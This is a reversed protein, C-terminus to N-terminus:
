AEEAIKLFQRFIVEDEIKYLDKTGKAVRRFNEINSKIEWKDCLKKYLLWFNRISKIYRRKVTEFDVFHGGKKVREEIRYKLIEVPYVFIYFCVIKCQKDKAQRLFSRLWKGSMTTEFAFSEERDLKKHLINLFDKGKAFENDAKIIDPNIFDLEFKACFKEAYTSKGAGNAGAFVVLIPSNM